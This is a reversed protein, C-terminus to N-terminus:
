GIGTKGPGHFCNGVAQGTVSAHIWRDADGAIIRHVESIRSGYWAAVHDISMDKYCYAFVTTIM